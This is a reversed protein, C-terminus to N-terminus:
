ENVAWPELAVRGRDPYEVIELTKLSGVINKVHGSTPEWGLALALEERSQEGAGLLHDFVLRQPGTLTSRLQDHFSLSTDADPAVAKGDDTLALRGQAPYDVLGATKLSGAVNKLHGSTIKWGAIAAVQARTPSEHGMATWWAIAGLLQRQPGSISGNSESPRVERAPAPQRQVPAPAVRRQPTPAAPISVSEGGLAALAAQQRRQLETSAATLREMTASCEALEATLQAVLERQDPWAPAPAAAARITTAKALDRRLAAIEAKLARPDNAKAEEEVTALRDKLKGLDLPKLDRRQRKEGRKPTRSSDFTLKPPFSATVLISRGPLWVVGQGIEFTPLADKIAKAQGVDAQGEIWADLANRDHTATLKFALLGDVQSLVNKNLVAPRQSILWPIFGRVRGRRVINEMHGLLIEDGKGPKQPAFLDAEDVILHFPEGGAKRYLTELFAAMFRRDAAKSGLESLDIICSEGMTAATEGILAGAHENLPLDGHPGGFIAVNFQSPTKGDALLRLGYWVGLPDVIVVRAGSGLLREVGSGANYTKGSGSTGIWGLRDDLAANPIPYDGM